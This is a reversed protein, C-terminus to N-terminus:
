DANKEIPALILAGLMFHFVWYVFAFPAKRNKRNKATL